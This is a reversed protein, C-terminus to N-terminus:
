QPLRYLYMGGGLGQFPASDAEMAGTLCDTVDASFGIGRDRLPSWIRINCDNVVSLIHCGARLVSDAAPDFVFEVCAPRLMGAPPNGFCGLLLLGAEAALLKALEANDHAVEMRRAARTAPDAIRVYESVDM